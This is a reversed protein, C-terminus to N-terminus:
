EIANTIMSIEFVISISPATDTAQDAFSLHNIRIYELKETHTILSKLSNYDGKLTMAASVVTFTPQPKTPEQVETDTAGETQSTDTTDTTQDTTTNSPQAKTTDETTSSPSAESTVATMGLMIPNLKNEVCIGTLLRDIDENPMLLPYRKIIDKYTENAKNLRQRSAKENALKEDLATMEATLDNLENQKKTYGNYLPTIVFQFMVLVIILISAAFILIKERKSISFKM